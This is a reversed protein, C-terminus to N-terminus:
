RMVIDRYRHVETTSEEKDEVLIDSEGKIVELEEPLIMQQGQFLSGNFFDAYRVKNELFENVATHGKSM